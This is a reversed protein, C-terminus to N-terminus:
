SEQQKKLHGRVLSSLEKSTLSTTGPRSVAISGAFNAAHAAHHLEAGHSLLFSLVAAITDGAGTVDRVETPFAPMHLPKQMDANFVTIGGAGRTLVIASGFQKFLARAARAASADDAVEIGSMAEAESANLKLLGVGGYLHANAPRPDVIIRAPTFRKMLADIIKQTVLGKAYDSVIVWEPAAITAITYLIEREIKKSIPLVIERDIRVIHRGQSVIRTKTITPTGPDTIFYPKIGAERTIRALERGELDQGVRGIIMTSLGLGAINSATNAAGGLHVSRKGEHVIPVPAEPSIREITSRMFIDMMVDGVVLIKKKHPKKLAEALLTLARNQPMSNVPSAPMPTNVGYMTCLNM